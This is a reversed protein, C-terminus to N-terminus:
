ENRWVAYKQYYAMAGTTVEAVARRVEPNREDHDDIAVVGGERVNALSFEIDAKAGDYHHDGDVHIFDFGGKIHQLAEPTWGVCLSIRRHYKSVLGVLEPLVRDFDSLDAFSDVLILHAQPCAQLITRASVGRYVGIELVRQASQMGTTEIVHKLDDRTVRM